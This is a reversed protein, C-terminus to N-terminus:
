AKVIKLMWNPFRLDILYKVFWKCYMSDWYFSINLKELKKDM